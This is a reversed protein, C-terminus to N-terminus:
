ECPLVVVTVVSWVPTGITFIVQPARDAVVGVMEVRVGDLPGVEPPVMTVTVPVCKVPALETL